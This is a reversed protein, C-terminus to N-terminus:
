RFRKRGEYLKEFIEKGKDVPSDKADLLNDDDRIYRVDTYRSLVQVRKDDTVCVDKDLAFVVTCGLSALLKMQSENLHSTLLAATNTIGWSDAILVSKCGEFVIVERKTKISELNEYLGYLLKMTGWSYFYTYKRLKKEKWLPDLTRGGVNVIKGTMDRIPYVIRDSLPDYKVEFRALSVDSIGENRWIELKEPDDEYMDMHRDSLVTPKATKEHRDQKRFRKCVTTALLKGGGSVVEGEVGAYQKLKEVTEYGSCGFFRKAFSYVNGGFGSSYDYFVPPTRRVSFSPTKENKFCSLGWWEDGRQELDVYQGIFDVIDISDILESLEM